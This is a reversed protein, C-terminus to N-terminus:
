KKHKTELILYYQVGFLISAIVLHTTQMGFPFYLYYMAMGSLIEIVLLAIVWNIKNLGLKLNNNLALVWINTAIVVISFTRHFYFEWNPNKLWEMANTVGDRVQHDVLERIQTGMVVQLLTLGLTVWLLTKVKTPVLTEQKNTKAMKIIHLIFAVIILAVVMHTTIKLPNLVSYVVTAGLWAQFGMSFVVLWSLLTISKRQKWYSFSAVAMVICAIGALAGCLRNIYETWTHYVNFIAYDHKTYLDWNESNYTETSTFNSKAVWLKEDKIIVQGKEFMHNAEWLLEKENTPPIYYGFCKPWDPCGMGSGTMRVAGGAVIVLYVLILATKAITVFNKKM